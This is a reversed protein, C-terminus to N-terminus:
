RFGMSRSITALEVASLEPEQIEELEKVTAGLPTTAEKSTKVNDVVDAVNKKFKETVVKEAKPTKIAKTKVPAVEKKTAKTKTAVAKPAEKTSPKATKGAIHKKHFAELIPTKMQTVNGGLLKKLKDDGTTAEKIATMLEKRNLPYVEAVKAGSKTEKPRMILYFDKSPLVIDPVEYTTKSVTETALFKSTDIDLERRILTQLEGWSTANTTISKKNGNKTSYVTIKREQQAVIPTANNEESM